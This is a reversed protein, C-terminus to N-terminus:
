CLISCANKKVGLIPLEIFGEAYRVGSQAGWLQNMPKLQQIWYAPNQSQFKNILEIKKNWYRSIDVFNTSEFQKGDLGVANYSSFCFFRVSIKKFVILDPLVKAVKNFVHRHSPHSDNYWHTVIVNPKESLISKAINKNFICPFMSAKAERQRQKTVSLPYLIKIQANMEQYRLLTGGMWIEADDPHAVIALLKM